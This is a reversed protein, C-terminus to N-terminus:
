KPFRANRTNGNACVVQRLSLQDMLNFDTCSPLSKLTDVNQHIKVAQSWKWTRLRQFFCSSLSGSLSICLWPKRNGTKRTNREKKQRYEIKWIKELGGGWGRGGGDGSSVRLTPAPVGVGPQLPRRNSQKRKRDDKGYSWLATCRPAALRAGRQTSRRAKRFSFLRFFFWALTPVM